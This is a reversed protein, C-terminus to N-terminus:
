VKEKEILRELTYVRQMLHLNREELDRILLRTTEHWILLSKVSKRLGM